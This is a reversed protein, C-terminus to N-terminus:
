PYIKNTEYLFMQQSREDSVNLRSSVNLQLTVVYLELLFYSFNDRIIM